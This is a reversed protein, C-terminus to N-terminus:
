REILHWFRQELASSERIGGAMKVTITKSGAKKIGRMSVCMHEAEIVVIVSEPQYKENIFNLIEWTLGEQLQPKKSFFDVSRVVKSLGIVKNNSPVYGIHVQGFFPLLHHECMSYFPIEKIVILDNYEQVFAKILKEDPETEVNGFIEQYMRAVRDPTEKLGERDPDEGIAELVM